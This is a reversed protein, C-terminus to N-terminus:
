LNGTIALRAYYANFWGQQASTIRNNAALIDTVAHMGVVGSLEINPESGTHIKQRGGDERDILVALHPVRLGVGHLVAAAELMSGGETITNDLAAVTDGVAFHGQVASGIGHKKAGARGWLLSDGRLQAVMGAMPTMAQPLGFLHDYAGVGELLESFATVALDRTIRQQEVSLPSEKSFGTMDRTNVYFPSARGGRLVWFHEEPYDPTPSPTDSPVTAFIIDGMTHMNVVLQEIDAM